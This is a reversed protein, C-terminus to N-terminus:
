SSKGLATMFFGMYKTYLNEVLSQTNSTDAVKALEDTVSVANGDIGVASAPSSQTNPETGPLAGFHAPNTQAPALASQFEASRLQAAFSTVDRPKYGPTDANAINQALIQQRQDVWKLRAEALNFLGIGGAGIGGSATEWDGNQAM